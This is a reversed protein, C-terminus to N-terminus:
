FLLGSVALRVSAATKNQVGLRAVVNNIRFTVTREKMELICAIEATSKGDATWRMIEREASSIKFSLAQIQTIKDHMAHALWFIHPQKQAIEFATLRKNQRVLSFMGITSADSGRTAQSWGSSEVQPVLFGQFDSPVEAQVSKATSALEINVNKLPDFAEAGWVLAGSLYGKRLLHKSAELSMRTPDQLRERQGWEPPLDGMKMSQPQSYSRCHVREYHWHDFELATTMRGLAFNLGGLSRAANLELALDQYQFSM